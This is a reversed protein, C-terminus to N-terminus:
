HGGTDCLFRSVGSSTKQSRLVALLPATDQPEIWVPHAPVLALLHFRSNHIPTDVGSALLMLPIAQVYIQTSGDLTSKPNPGLTYIQWTQNSVIVLLVHYMVQPFSVTEKATSSITWLPPFDNSINCLSSEKLFCCLWRDAWTWPIFVLSICSM